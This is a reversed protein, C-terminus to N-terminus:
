RLGQNQGYEYARIRDIRVSFAPNQENIGFEYKDPLMGTESCLRPLYLDQLQLASSLALLHYNEKMTSYTFYEYAAKRQHSAPIQSPFIERM